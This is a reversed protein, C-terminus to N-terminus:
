NLSTTQYTPPALNGQQWLSCKGGPPNLGEQQAKNLGSKIVSGWSVPGPLLGPNWKWHSPIKLPPICCELVDPFVYHPLLFYQIAGPGPLAKIGCIPFFLKDLARSLLHHANSFGPLTAHILTTMLGPSLTDSLSCSDGAKLKFPCPCAAPICPLRYSFSPHCM